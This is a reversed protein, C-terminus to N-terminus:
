RDIGQGVDLGRELARGRAPQELRRARVRGAIELRRTQIAADLRAIEARSIPGLDYVARLVLGANHARTQAHTAKTPFETRAVFAGRAEEDVDAVGKAPSRDADAFKTGPRSM